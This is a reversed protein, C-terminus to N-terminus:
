VIPLAMLERCKDNMTKSQENTAELLLKGFLHVAQMHIAQLITVLEAGRLFGEYRREESVLVAAGTCSQEGINYTWTQESAIQIDLIEFIVPRCQRVIHGDIGSLYKGINSFLILDM